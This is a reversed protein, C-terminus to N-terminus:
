RATLTGRQRRYRQGREYGKRFAESKWWKPHLNRLCEAAQEVTKDSCDRRLAAEFGARYPEHDKAFNRGLQHYHEQEADRLGIWWAERAADISEAGAEAMLERARQAEGKGNAMVILVPKGHRLADEYFFIEDAPLGETSSREAASGLMAGGAGLLAAGALGFAIVPGVGPIVASAAAMAGLEAGGALGLAAGVVGGIAGGLGPQETESVPVSHIQEEPTGPFLLNLNEPSFGSNRLVRFAGRSAEPSPFVGSVAEM